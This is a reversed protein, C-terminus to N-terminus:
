NSPAVVAPLTVEVLTAGGLDVSRADGGYRLAIARVTDIGRGPSRPQGSSELVQLRVHHPGSREGCLWVTGGLPLADCADLVLHQAILEIDDATCAVRPVAGALEVSLEIESPMAHRWRRPADGLVDALSTTPASSSLLAATTGGRRPRLTLRVASTGASDVAVTTALQRDASEHLAHAHARANEDALAATCAVLDKITFAVHRAGLEQWLASLGPLRPRRGLLVVLDAALHTRAHETLQLISAVPLDAVTVVAQVEGADMLRIAQGIDDGTARIAIGRVECLADVIDARRVLDPDLVFVDLMM